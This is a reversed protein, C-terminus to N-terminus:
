GLGVISAWGGMRVCQVERWVGFKLRRGTRLTVPSSLGMEDLTSESDAFIDAHYTRDTTSLGELSWTMGGEGVRPFCSVPSLISSTPIYCGAGGAGRVEGVLSEM